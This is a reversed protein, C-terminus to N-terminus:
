VATGSHPPAFNRTGSSSSATTVSRPASHSYGAFLRRRRILDSGAAPRVTEQGPATRPLHGPNVLKEHMRTARERDADLDERARQPVLDGHGVQQQANGAVQLVILFDRPVPLDEQQFLPRRTSPPPGPRAARMSRRPSAASSVGSADTASHIQRQPLDALDEVVADMVPDGIRTHAVDNDAAPGDLARAKAYGDVYASLPVQPQASRQAGGGESAELSTM